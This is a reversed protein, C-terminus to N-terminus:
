IPEGAQEGEALWAYFELDEYLEIDQQPGEDFVIAPETISHHTSPNNVSIIMAISAIGAATLPLGWGQWTLLTHKENQTLTAHRIQNLSSRTAGDLNDESAHLQKRISQEFDDNNMMKRKDLTVVNM